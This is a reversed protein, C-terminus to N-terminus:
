WAPPRGAIVAVVGGMVSLGIIVAFTIWFGRHLGGSTESGLEHRLSGDGQTREEFRSLDSVPPPEVPAMITAPIVLRQGCANCLAALGGESDPVTLSRECRPCIVKIPM